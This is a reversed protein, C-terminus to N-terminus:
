RDARQLPDSGDAAAALRQPLDRGGMTQRLGRIGFGGDHNLISGTAPVNDQRSAFFVYAGAYDAATPLM